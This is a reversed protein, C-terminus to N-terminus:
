KKKNDFESKARKNDQPVGLVIYKEFSKSVIAKIFCRFLTPIKPYHALMCLTGLGMDRSRTGQPRLDSFGATM